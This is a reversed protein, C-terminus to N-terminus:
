KTIPLRPRSRPAAEPVEEDQMGALVDKYIKIKGSAEMTRQTTALYDEFVQNKRADLATKMLPDRQKAFEALDAETRKNVGLVVYNGNLFIPTQIVDGAKSNFLPDDLLVSSGAEGLPTELKYNAEAKTELGVKAAAAKLDGPTKANAILEKARDELQAKAREAKLAKTVKDKVEDLDPIRPDRKEVLMPIAFGNKIGTREGVDNPNNLPAIADEFQQSSGINPVDDGPKVFPTERVMDAAKMNAEAALEQAVKQPDKTEKLREQTKQALKQAVTYGRRNRLSVILEPKAAEFTKPVSDGRRLIYYANKYKIPDTVDGPQLDLVKQYPDDVKTPDKKVVGGVRGGNRATAPDESNGKALEAFADETANGSAGRAKAVLDEAKKNVTADLEPRAIKLVIQQVNVGAQKFEPKLGDYEDHLDKDSIQLKEGSKDQDIFVYRIKKQPMKFQYEAKHQEYYAKLEADTPQIKEALKDVTVVVYTLDFTTNKRKYDERVEDESVHVSATVFAELKERAVTAAVSHEFKQWDGRTATVSDKYKQFDPKGSADTFLFKGSADSYQKFIRESVEAESAGLGLRNAEATVVRDRILGDLLRQDGGLQALSMQGGLMQMYQARLQALDGVTVDDGAVTALVETSKAAEVQNSGSNPRFFLVLSVAMLAVFGLILIKSTREFRRLQKLM